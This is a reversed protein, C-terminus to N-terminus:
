RKRKLIVRSGSEEAFLENLLQREKNLAKCIAQKKLELQAIKQQTAKIHSQNINM